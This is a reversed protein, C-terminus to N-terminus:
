NKSPNNCDKAFWGCKWIRLRCFIEMLMDIILVIMMVVLTNLSAFDHFDNFSMRVMMIFVTPARELRVKTRQMMMKMKATIPM